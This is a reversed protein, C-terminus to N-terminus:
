EPACARGAFESLWARADDLSPPEGSRGFIELMAESRRKVERRHILEDLIGLAMQAHEPRFADEAAPIGWCAFEVLQAAREESPRSAREAISIARRVLREWRPPRGVDLRAPLVAELLDRDFSARAAILNVAGSEEKDRRELERFDEMSTLNVPQSGLDDDYSPLEADLDIVFALLEDATLAPKSMCM